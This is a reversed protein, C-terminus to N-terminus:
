LCDPLPRSHPRSPSLSNKSTFATIPYTGTCTPMGRCSFAITEEYGFSGTDRASGSVVAETNAHAAQLSIGCLFVSAALLRLIAGITRM